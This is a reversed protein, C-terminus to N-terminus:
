PSHARSSSCPMKKFAKGGPLGVTVPTIKGLHGGRALEIARPFGTGSHEMSTVMAWCEAVSISVPKRLFHKGARAAAIEARELLEEDDTYGCSGQYNDTDHRSPYQSEVQQVGKERHVRDPACFGIIKVDNIGLFKGVKLRDQGAAGIQGFYLRNTAARVIQPFALAGPGDTPVLKLFSRREM